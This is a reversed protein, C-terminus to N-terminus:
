CYHANEYKPINWQMSFFFDFKTVFNTLFYKIIQAEIKMRTKSKKLNLDTSSSSRANAKPICNTINRKNPIHLM